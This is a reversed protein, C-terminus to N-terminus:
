PPTSQVAPFVDFSLRRYPASAMQVWSRLKYENGWRDRLRSERYATELAVIGVSNLSHLEGADTVGNRTSDMWIVLRGFEPDVPNVKGDLNEDLESLAFYGDRAVSGNRMRTSTGFLEAGSDIKGNNNLDRALWGDGGVPWAMQIPQGTALLDFTVGESVSSFRAGIGTLAIVIPSFTGCKYCGCGDPGLKITPWTCTPEPTTYGPTCNNGTNCYSVCVCTRTKKAALGNCNTDGPNGCGDM